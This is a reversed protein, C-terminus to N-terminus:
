EGGEKQATANRAAADSFGWDMQPQNLLSAIETSWRFSHHIHSLAQGALAAARRIQWWKCQRIEQLCEAARNIGLSTEKWKQAVDCRGPNIVGSRFFAARAMDTTEQSLVPSGFVATLFEMVNKAEEDETIDGGRFHDPTLLGVHLEALADHLGMLKKGHAMVWVQGTPAPMRRVAHPVVDRETMGAQALLRRLMELIVQHMIEGM